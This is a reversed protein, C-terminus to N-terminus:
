EPCHVIKYTGTLDIWFMSGDKGDRPKQKLLMVRDPYESDDDANCSLDYLVGDMGGLKVPNILVCTAECYSVEHGKLPLFRPMCGDELNDLCLGGLSNPFNKESWSTAASGFIMSFTLCLIATLKRM